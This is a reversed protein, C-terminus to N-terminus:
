KTLVKKLGPTVDPFRKMQYDWAAEYATKIFWGAVDPALKYFEVGADLAKQRAKTLNKTHEEMKLEPYENMVDVMMNQLHQPIRNWSNLNMIAMATSQYYPQDIVYKTVEHCGLAVWTILPCSSVGDYLGREMSTYYDAVGRVPIVKAGWALSAARAAPGAGIRLKAFDQPKEVRKNLYCYFFREDERSPAQRGLFMLGNKKHLEVLYDYAGGPTREEQPTLETLMAAGVGRVIAEYFGVFTTAIDVIGNQVAKGINAPAIVEPGGRYKIVLAGKARENMRDIAFEQFAVTEPSNKPLISSWNLVIPEACVGKSPVTGAVFMFSVFSLLMLLALRKM